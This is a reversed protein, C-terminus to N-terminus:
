TDFMSLMYIKSQKDYAKKQQESLLGIEDKDMDEYALGKGNVFHSLYDLLGRCPAFWEGGIRYDDFYTHIEQETGDLDRTEIYGALWVLSSSHTQYQQVRKSINTSQGIKIFGNANQIFYIGSVNPPDIEPRWLKRWSFKDNKRHDSM